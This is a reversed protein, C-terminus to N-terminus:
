HCRPYKRKANGRERASGDNSSNVSRSTISFSDDAPGGVQLVRELLNPMRTPPEDLEEDSDFEGIEDAEIEVDEAEVPPEESSACCGM